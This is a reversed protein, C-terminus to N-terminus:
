PAAVPAAPPAEGPSPSPAADEPSSYDMEVRADIAKWDGRKKPPNVKPMRVPLRGELELLRHPSEKEVTVRFSPAVAAIFISSPKMVVDVAPKGKYDRDKDKFLKFGVSDQRELLLIRIKVSEDAELQKWSARITEEIQDPVIMGEEFKEDDTSTKGQEVYNYFVRGDKIEITGSEDTQLQNYKYNKLKGNEFLMDEEVASKGNSLEQYRTHSFTVAGTSGKKNEYQFLLKGSQPDFIKGKVMEDAMAPASVAVCIAMLTTFHSTNM